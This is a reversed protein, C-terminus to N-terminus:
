SDCREPVQRAAPKTIPTADDFCRERMREVFDAVPQLSKAYGAVPTKMPWCVM